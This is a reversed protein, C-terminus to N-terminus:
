LWRRVRRVWDRYAPGFRAELRAEEPQIYRRTIMAMFVPVLLLAVPADCWLAAGALVLADGLYIPNRSLGFVGGTVLATPDRRPIFTTRARRMRVLAAAMLVLGLGALAAGLWAGPAGFPHWGILRGLAWALVVFLALWLPPIDLDRM